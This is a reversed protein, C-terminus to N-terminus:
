TQAPHVLQQLLTQAGYACDPTLMQWGAPPQRTAASSHWDALSQQPPSGALPRAPAPFTCHLKAVPTEGGSPVQVLGLPQSTSPSTHPSCVPLLVQPLERCSQQSQRGGLILQQLGSVSPM